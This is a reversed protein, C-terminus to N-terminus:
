DCVPIELLKLDTISQRLTFNPYTIDMEMIVGNERLNFHMEYLPLEHTDNPDFFALSIPWQKMGNTDQSSKGFAANVIHYPTEGGDGDYLRAHYNKHGALAHEILNQTHRIPFVYDGTMTTSKETLGNNHQITLTNSAHKIAEGRSSHDIHGDNGRELAFVLRNGNIQEISSYNNKSQVHKGGDYHYHINAHHHTTWEACSKKLKFEVDGVTDLLPEGMSRKILSMKYNAQHPVIQAAAM